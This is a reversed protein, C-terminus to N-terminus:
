KITNVYDVWEYCIELYTKGDITINTDLNLKWVYEGGYKRAIYYYMLPFSFNKKGNSDNWCNAIMKESLYINNVQEIEHEALINSLALVRDIWADIIKNDNLQTDFYISCGSIEYKKNFSIENGENNYACIDIECESTQYKPKDTVDTTVTLGSCATLFLMSCLIFAILILLNYRLKKM